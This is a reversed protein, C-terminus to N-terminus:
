DVATAGAARRAVERSGETDALPEAQVSHFTDGDRGSRYNWGSYSVNQYPGDQKSLETINGTGPRDVLRQLDGAGEADPMEVWAVSM